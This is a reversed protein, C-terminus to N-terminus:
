NTNTYQNPRFIHKRANGMYQGYRFKLLQTIQSDTILTNEWLDKSNKSDDQDNNVWKDLYVYNVSPEKQQKLERDKM